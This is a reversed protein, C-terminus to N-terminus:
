NKRKIMPFLSLEKGLQSSFLHFGKVPNVGTFLKDIEIKIREVSVHQIQHRM